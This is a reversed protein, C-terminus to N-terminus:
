INYISILMFKVLVSSTGQEQTRLRAFGTVRGGKVIVSTKAAM